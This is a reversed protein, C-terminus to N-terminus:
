PTYGCYYSGDVPADDLTPASNRVAIGFSTNLTQGEEVVVAMRASMEDMANMEATSLRQSLMFYPMEIAKVRGLCPTSNPPTWTNGQNGTSASAPMSFVDQVAVLEIRGNRLGGERVSAIRVVMEPLNRRLDRIRIVSGPYLQWGRRDLALSFRRVPVSLLRLEREAVRAALSATPIGLYDRTTSNIVGGANQVAALNQARTKREDGTIPDRWTVIVENISEAPAGYKAETIELLGSESDFLPLESTTYDARILKIVIKGTARDQYTNASITELVEEAFSQVESTRTWRLCLGFGEDFLTQSAALWSADDLRDRPLGRGWVRNTLAEYVIHVGNMAHIESPTQPHNADTSGTLLIMANDPDFPLGDWGETSRRVRIAWTKPYPNVGAIMGDFFATVVGRLMSMTGTGGIRTSVSSPVTQNARGFFFDLLGIIGGEKTEGGFLEYSDVYVQGTDTIANASGPVIQAAPTPNTGWIPNGSGDYGVIAYQDHSGGSGERLTMTRDGARVEVIENVPGRCIGMLVSLYYRFGLVAGANSRSM